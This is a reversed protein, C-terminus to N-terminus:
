GASSLACIYNEIRRKLYARGFGTKLQNERVIADTKNLCAEFYIPYLDHMKSTTAARGEMHERIRRNLDETYGIYYKNDIKSYLVYVYYWTMLEISGALLAKRM